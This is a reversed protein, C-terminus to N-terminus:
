NWVSVYYTMGVPAVIVNESKPLARQIGETELACLLPHLVPIDVTPASIAMM